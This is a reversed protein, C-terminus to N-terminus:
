YCILSNMWEIRLATPTQAHFDTEGLFNVSSFKRM